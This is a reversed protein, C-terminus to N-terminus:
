ETETREDQDEEKLQMLIIEPLNLANRVAKASGQLERITIADQESELGNRIDDLWREYNSQIDKWINSKLFEEYDEVTGLIVAYDPPLEM